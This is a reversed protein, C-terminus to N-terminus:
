PPYPPALFGIAIGSKGDHRGMCIVKLEYYITVPIATSPTFLPLDSLVISDGCSHSTLVHTNPHVTRISVHKSNPPATLHIDGTSIHALIQQSHRQPLWLPNRQCWAHARAAEDFSANTTPSSEEFCAPPPPLLTNDPIALWPDYPPPEPENSQHSPPPGSPPACEEDDNSSWPKKGGGWSPSPGSPQEYKPPTDLNSQRQVQLANTHASRLFNNSTLERHRSAPGAFQIHHQENAATGYGRFSTHHSSPLNPPPADQDKMPSTTQLAPATKTSQFSPNNTKPRKLQAVVTGNHLTHRRRHGHKPTVRLHELSFTSHIRRSNIHQESHSFTFNPWHFYPRRRHSTPFCLCGM